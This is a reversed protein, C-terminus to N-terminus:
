KVSIRTAHHAALNKLFGDVEDLTDLTDMYAGLGGRTIIRYGGWSTHLVGLGNKEAIAAATATLTGSENTLSRIDSDQGRDTRKTCNTRDIYRM